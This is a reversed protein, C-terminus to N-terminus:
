ALFMNEGIDPFVIFKVGLERFDDHDPCGHGEYDVSKWSYFDKGV